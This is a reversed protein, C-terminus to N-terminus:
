GDVQGRPHAISPASGEPELDVLAKGEAVDAPVSVHEHVIRWADPLKRWCATWRVWRYVRSGSGTVGGIGNLSRSFAVEAGAVVQLDHLTVELEGPHADVMAQWRRRFTEGGGHQLPPGLDFSVVDNAFVSLIRDVDKARIAAVFVDISARVAAEHESPASPTAEIM